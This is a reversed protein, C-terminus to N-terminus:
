KKTKSYDSFSKIVSSGKTPVAPDFATSVKGVSGMNKALTKAAAKLKSKRRKRGPVVDRSRVNRNGGNGIDGSGVTGGNATYGDGSTQGPISSPQAAVVAGMGSTNGLTAYASGGGGDGDENLTDDPLEMDYKVYARVYATEDLKTSFLISQEFGKKDFGDLKYVDQLRKTIKAYNLM